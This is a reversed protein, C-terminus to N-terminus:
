VERFETIDIAFNATLALKHAQMNIEVTDLLNAEKVANFTQFVTLPGGWYPGIAIRVDPSHQRVYLVAEVTHSFDLSDYVVFKIFDTDRLTSLLEPKHLINKSTVSPGCSPLKWDLVWFVNPFHKAYETWDLTGSTEVSVEYGRQYAEEFFEALESPKRWLPDGGTLCIRKLGQGVHEVRHFTEETSMEKGSGKELAEPTDCLEGLTDKYCRLHCGGTRVFVVPAGIGWVNCEGQFTTYITNIVM